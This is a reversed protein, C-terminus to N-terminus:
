PRGGLDADKIRQDIVAKDNDIKEETSKSLYKFLSFIDKLLEIFGSFGM